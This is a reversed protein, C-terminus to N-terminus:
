GGYHIRDSGRVTPDAKAKGEMIAQALKSQAMLRLEPREFQNALNVARDFDSWAFPGANQALDTLLAGLNGKGTMSWEGDRLYDNDVRDLVAAAAVLENLKPILSEVIAFGRDSKLWCYLQALQIQGAMQERGPKTSDLIQGAQNLLSLAAKRNNGGMRGAVALMFQVREESGPIESLAQQVETLKEPTMSQWMQARELEQLMYARQEEDQTDAAIQRARTLDGSAAAKRMAIWYIRDHMQPNKQALELLEEVTGNEFTESMGIFESDVANQENGAWRRLGAGRSGYYKEIQPFISGVESCFYESPPESATGACGNALASALLVGILERYTQEDAVPPPFSRVLNVAVELASTEEMLNASRLKDVIAKYFDMAADKDQKRMQALATLLDASFGRALSQRGFKLALQPNKAAVQGALQLELARDMDKMEDPMKTYLAPRTSQLFELALEPDHKAIRTVVNSRLFVFVRLSEDRSPGEPDTNTFATRLDDAAAAFLGRARKEDHSWLLEAVNSGIRVRNEASRLTSVQGAVSELLKLAKQQVEALDEKRSADTAPQQSLAPGSLLLLSIIVCLLYSRHSVFVENPVPWFSTARADQAHDQRRGEPM